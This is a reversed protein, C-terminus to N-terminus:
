ILDMCELMHKVIWDKEMLDVPVYWICIRNEARCHFVGLTKDYEVTVGHAELEAIHDDIAAIM